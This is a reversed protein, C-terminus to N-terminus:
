QRMYRLLADMNQKVNDLIVEKSNQLIRSVFELDSGKHKVAKMILDKYSSTMIINYSNNEYFKIITSLIKTYKDDNNNLIYKGNINDLCYLIKKDTLIVLINNNNENVTSLVVTNIDDDNNIMEKNLLLQILIDADYSIVIFRLKNYLENFNNYQFEKFIDGSIYRIFITNAM